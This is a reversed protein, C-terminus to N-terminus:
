GAYEKSNGNVFMFVKEDHIVTAFTINKYDKALKALDDMTSAQCIFDNTGREYLYLTDNVQYVELKKVKSEVRKELEDEITIGRAEAFKLIINKVRHLAHLHGISYGIVLLCIIEFLSM